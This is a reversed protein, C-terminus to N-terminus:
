MAAVVMMTSGHVPMNPVVHVYCKEILISKFCIFLQNAYNFFIKFKLKIRPKDENVGDLESRVEEILALKINPDLVVAAICM